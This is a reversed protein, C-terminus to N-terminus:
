LFLAYGPWGAALAPHTRMPWLRVLGWMGVLAFGANSLVNAANPLGLHGHADAFAHYHLPQAIPGHLLLAAAAALTVLTPLLALPGRAGAPAANATLTM